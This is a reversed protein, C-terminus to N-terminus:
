GVAGERTRGEARPLRPGQSVGVDFQGTVADHVIRQDECVYLAILDNPTLRAGVPTGATALRELAIVVCDALQRTFDHRQAELFAQDDLSRRIEAEAALAAACREDLGADAGPHSQRLELVLGSLVALVDTTRWLLDVTAGTDIRDRLAAVQAALISCVLRESAEATAQM